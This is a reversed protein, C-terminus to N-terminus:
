GVATVRIVLFYYYYFHNITSFTVINEKLNQKQQQFKLRALLVDLICLFFVVHKMKLIIIIHVGIMTSTVM